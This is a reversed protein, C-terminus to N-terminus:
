MQLGDEEGMEKMIKRRMAVQIQTIFLSLLILSNLGGFVIGALKVWFVPVFFAGVFNLIALVIWCYFLWKSRNGM